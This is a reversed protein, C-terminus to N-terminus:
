NIMRVTQIFVRPSMGIYKNFQRTFHNYNQFGVNFAVESATLNTHTLLYTAQKIRMRNLTAVISEGTNEKFVHQLRSPSLGISNGLETIQINENMRTALIYLVEEVRPDLKSNKQKSYLLIIERLSSLCLEHWLHGQERFDSLIRKFADFIRDRLVQQEFHHTILDDQPLVNTDAFSNSFHVWVFEWSKQKATGYVHPVRPRLLSLDGARLNKIQGGANIYGEGGLTFTMLWDDMGELRTTSYSDNEHFHGAIIMFNKPDNKM